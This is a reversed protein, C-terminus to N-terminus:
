LQYIAILCAASIIFQTAEMRQFSPNKVCSLTNILKSILM